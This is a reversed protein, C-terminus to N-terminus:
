AIARGLELVSCSSKTLRMSQANDCEDPCGALRKASKSGAGDSSQSSGNELSLYRWMSRTRNPTGGWACVLSFSEKLKRRLGAGYLQAGHIINADPSAM